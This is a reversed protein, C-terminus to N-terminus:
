DWNTFYPLLQRQLEADPAEGAGKCLRRYHILCGQMLTRHAYPQRLFEPLLTAVAEAASPLAEAAPRCDGLLRALLMLSRALDPRFLARQAALGRRINVAEHAVELGQDCQHLDLFVEALTHLSTALGPRAVEPRESVLERNVGVAEHAALLAEQREGAEALWNALNSLSVALM